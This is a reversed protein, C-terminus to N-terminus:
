PAMIGMREMTDGCHTLITEVHNNDLIGKYGGVVGRRVFMPRYKVTNEFTHSAVARSINEEDMVVGIAKSIRRILVSANKSAEAYRAVYAGAGLWEDNYAPWGLRGHSDGFTLHPGARIGCIQDVCYSLDSVSAKNFTFHYFCSVAVDFPNRGMLIIKDDDEGPFDSLNWHARRVVYRNQRGTHAVIPDTGLRDHDESLSLVPCDLADALMRAVWTGGSRPYELVWITVM